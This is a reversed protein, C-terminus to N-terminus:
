LYLRGSNKRFCAALHCCRFKEGAGQLAGFSLRKKFKFSNSHELSNNFLQAGIRIFKEVKGSSGM